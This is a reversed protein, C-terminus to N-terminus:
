VGGGARKAEEEQIEKRIDNRERELFYAIFTRILILGALIILGEYSPELMTLVIDAGVSFELGMLLYAGFHSRLQDLKFSKQAHDCKTKELKLYQFLTKLAGIVIIAVGIVVMSEAIIHCLSEVKHM